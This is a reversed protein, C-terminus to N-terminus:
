KCVIGIINNINQDKKGLEKARLIDKCAGDADELMGKSFGRYFYANFLNPNLDIANTFDTIAGYYDKLLYKAQGRGYYAEEFNNKYDIAKTFFEIAGIYNSINIAQKGRMLNFDSCQVFVVEPNKIEGREARAFDIVPQNCVDFSTDDQSFSYFHIFVFLILLNKM